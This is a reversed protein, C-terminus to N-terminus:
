IETSRETKWKIADKQILMLIILNVERGLSGERRHDDIDMLNSIGTFIVKIDINIVM